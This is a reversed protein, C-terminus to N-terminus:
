SEVLHRRLVSTSQGTPLTSYTFLFGMLKQLHIWTLTTSASCNM